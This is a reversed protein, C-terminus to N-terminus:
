NHQHGAQRRNLFDTLDNPQVKYIKDGPKLDMVYKIGNINLWMDDLETMGYQEHMCVWFRELDRSTIEYETPLLSLTGVNFDLLPDPFKQGDTDLVLSEEMFDYRSRQM